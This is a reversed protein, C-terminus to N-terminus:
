PTRPKRASFFLAGLLRRLLSVACCWPPFVCPAFTSGPENQFLLRARMHIGNLGLHTWCKPQRGICYKSVGLLPCRWGLMCGSSRLSNIVITKTLSGTGGADEEKVESRPKGSCSRFSASPVCIPNGARSRCLVVVVFCFFICPEVTNYCESSAHSLFRSTPVCMMQPLRPFVFQVHKVVRPFHFAIM